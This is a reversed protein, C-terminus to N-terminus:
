AVSWRVGGIASGALYDTCGRSASRSPEYFHHTSVRPRIECTRSSWGDQQAISQTALSRNLPAEPEDWGIRAKHWERREDVFTVLAIPTACL